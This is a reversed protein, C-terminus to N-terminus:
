QWNNVKQRNHSHRQSVSPYNLIIWILSPLLLNISFCHFCDSCFTVIQVLHNPCLPFYFSNEMEEFCSHKILSLSRHGDLSVHPIIFHPLSVNLFVSPFTFSMKRCIKRFIKWAHFSEPVRLGMKPCKFIPVKPMKLHTFIPSWTGSELIQSWKKVGVDGWFPPTPTNTKNM